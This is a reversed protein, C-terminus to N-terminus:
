ILCPLTSQFAAAFTHPLVQLKPPAAAITAQSASVAIRKSLLWWAVCGASVATAITQLIWSVVYQWDIM